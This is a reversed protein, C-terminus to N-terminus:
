RQSNGPTAGNLGFDLQKPIAEEMVGAARVDQIGALIMGSIMVVSAAIYKDSADHDFGTKEIWFSVAGNFAEIGAVVLAAGSIGHLFRSDRQLEQVRAEQEPTIFVDAVKRDIFGREHSM